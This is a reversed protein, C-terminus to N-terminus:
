YYYGGISALGGMSFFFIIWALIGMLSIILGAIALGRGTLTSDRGSTVAIGIISLIFALPSVGLLAFVLAAVAVGSTKKYVTKVTPEAAPAPAPQYIVVKEQKQPSEEKKSITEQKQIRAGCYECYDLENSILAGCGPCRSVQLDSM